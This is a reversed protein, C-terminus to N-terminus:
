GNGLQFVVSLNKLRLSVLFIKARHVVICAMDVQETCISGSCLRIGSM